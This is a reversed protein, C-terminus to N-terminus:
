VKAGGMIRKYASTGKRVTVPQRPKDNVIKYGIYSGIAWYRYAPMFVYVGVVAAAVAFKVIKSM